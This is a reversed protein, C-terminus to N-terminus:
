DCAGRGLVERRLEAIERYGPPRELVERLVPLFYHLSRVPPLPTAFANHRMRRGLAVVFATLIAHLPVQQDHLRAAAARDARRVHGVVGPLSRYAELVALVYRDRQDSM